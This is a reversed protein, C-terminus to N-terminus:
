GNITDFLDDWEPNSESILRLKWIRKWRKIRKERLIANNIEDHREAYVLKKCDWTKCFISGKGQRHATIRSPLDATVGVYLVGFPKNAMIYVYGGRKM